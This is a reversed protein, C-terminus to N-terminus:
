RLYNVMEIDSMPVEALSLRQIRPRYGNCAIIGAVTEADGRTLTYTASECGGGGTVKFVYSM